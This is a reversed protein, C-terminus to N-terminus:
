RGMDVHTDIFALVEGAVAPGFLDNHGVGAVWMSQKPEPALAYLQRGMRVPIIDDKVGHVILLPEDLMQIKDKNRFKDRTLWGTPLIPYHTGAVDPISTYPAELILAAVKNETALQVAVGTGLSEGYLVIRDALIGTGRLFAIAARGDHYLGEETPSGPNGGYGRYEVLLIGAGAGTLPVAKFLRHAINGANGHFLVIVPQASSAPAAYWSTLALGDATNLTVVSFGPAGVAQPAPLNQDPFYLLSRQFCAALVVILAYGIGVYLAVRLLTDMVAM